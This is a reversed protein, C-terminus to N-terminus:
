CQPQFPERGGAAHLQGKLDWSLLQAVQQPWFRLSTLWSTHVKNKRHHTGGLHRGLPALHQQSVVSTCAHERSDLCCLAMPCSETGCVRGRPNPSSMKSGNTSCHNPASSPHPHTRIPHARLQHGPSAPNEHAHGCSHPSSLSNITVM